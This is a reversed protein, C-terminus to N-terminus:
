GPSKPFLFSLANTPNRFKEPWLTKRPVGGCFELVLSTALDLGPLCFTPDVGREFRYRADSNVGLKRGTRAINRPGM